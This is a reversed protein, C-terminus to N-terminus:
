AEPEGAELWGAAAGEAAPRTIGDVPVTESSPM